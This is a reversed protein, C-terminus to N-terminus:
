RSKDRDASARRLFPFTMKVQIIHGLMRITKQCGDHERWAAHLVRVRGAWVRRPIQRTIAVDEPFSAIEGGTQVSTGIVVPLQIPEHFQCPLRTHREDCRIVYM